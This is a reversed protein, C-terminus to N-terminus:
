TASPTRSPPSTRAPAAPATGTSSTTAPAVSSRVNFFTGQIGDGGAGSEIYAGTEMQGFSVLDPGGLTSIHISRIWKADVYYGVDNLLIPYVDNEQGSLPPRPVRRM